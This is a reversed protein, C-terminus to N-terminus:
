TWPDRRAENILISKGHFITNIVHFERDFVALNAWKGKQISGMRDEMGLVRAPNLSAMNIVHHVELGTWELTNRVAKNLTLVSGALIRTGALRAVNDKVEIKLNGMSYQGDGLGVAKISDTVLCIKERGKKAVALRVASPHVHEGDSILEATVKESDLVAGVVGPERPHFRRMANFLHTAHSIGQAFSKVAQAYTANSHGISVVVGNETLIKIFKMNNGVEPALSIVAPMRNLTELLIGIKEPDIGQIHEPDQAGKKKINLFPGEIHVGLIESPLPLKQTKKVTRVAKIISEFSSSMTTALFGTVGSRAQHLAIKRLSEPRCDMVDKGLAGHIHLNVLGPSIYKDAYDLVVSDRDKPEEGPPLVDLIKEGDLM